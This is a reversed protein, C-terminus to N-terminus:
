FSGSIPGTRLSQATVGSRGQFAMQEQEALRKRRESELGRLQEQELETQITTAKAAKSGEYIGSLKTAPALTNAINSYAQSALASIQGETLGKATLEAGYKKLDEANYTIGTTLNARRAVELGIAATNKNQQMQEVGVNPDMFFDTLGQDSKIYGLDQLNKLIKPDATVSALRAQNANEDFKAVSLKNTLYKQIFDTSTFKDGLSYKTASAKYGEVTQFLVSASYPDSVKENYFGYSSYFPSTLVTGSKTTYNKNNLYIEVISTTDLGEKQLSTLFPVSSDVLTAPLGRGKLTAKIIEVDKTGVQTEIFNPDPDSFQRESGDSMTDIRVREKGTGVYRSSKVTIQVVKGSADISVGADKAMKDLVTEARDKVDIMSNISNVLANLGPYKSLDGLTALAASAEEPKSILGLPNEATPKPAPAPTKTPAPTGTTALADSAAEYAALADRVAKEEASMKTAM